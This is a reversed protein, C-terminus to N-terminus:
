EPHLSSLAAHVRRSGRWPRGPISVSPINGHTCVTPPKVGGLSSQGLRCLDLESLESEATGNHLQASRQFWGSPIWGSRARASDPTLALGSLGGQLRLAIRVQYFYTTAPALNTLIAHHHFTEYYSASTGEARQPNVLSKDTGYLVVTDTNTPTQWSVAMGNANGLSDRGALAIHIQTPLAEVAAVLVLAWAAALVAAAM